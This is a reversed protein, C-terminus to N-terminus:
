KIEEIKKNLLGNNIKGIEIVLGLLYKYQKYNKFAKVEYLIEFYDKTTDIISSIERYIENRKEHDKISRTLNIKLILSSINSLVINYFDRHKAAIYSKSNKVFNKYFEITKTHLQYDKKIGRQIENAVFDFDQNKDDIKNQIHSFVDDEKVFRSKPEYYKTTHFKINPTITDFNEITAVEGSIRTKIEKIINNLMKTPFTLKLYREGVGLMTIKKDPFLRSIIIADENFVSCLTKSIVIIVYKKKFDLDKYKTYISTRNEKNKNLEESM